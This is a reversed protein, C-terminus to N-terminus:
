RHYKKFTNELTTRNLHPKETTDWTGAGTAWIGAGKNRITAKKGWITTWIGAWNGWICAGKGWIGAGKAWIGESGRRRALDHDLDGGM